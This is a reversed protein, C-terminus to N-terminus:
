PKEPPEQDLGHRKSLVIAALLIAGALRNIAVAQVDSAMLSGTHLLRVAEQEADTITM